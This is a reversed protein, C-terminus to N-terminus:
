PILPTFRGSVIGNFLGNQQIPGVSIIRAADDGATTIRLLRGEVLQVINTNGTATDLFRMANPNSALDQLGAPSIKGALPELRGDALQGAVRDAVTFAEPLAEVAELLPGAVIGVVASIMASVLYAVQFQIGGASGGGGPVGGSDGRGSPPSINLIGALGLAGALVPNLAPGSAGPSEFGGTWNTGGVARGAVGGSVGGFGGGPSGGSPDEIGLAAYVAAAAQALAAAQDPGPAEAAAQAAASGSHASAAAQAADYGTDDDLFGYITSGGTEPNPVSIVQAASPVGVGDSIDDLGLPDVHGIPSGRVFADPNPDGAFGHVTLPDPTIFRNLTASYYRAGFYILGVSSSLFHL